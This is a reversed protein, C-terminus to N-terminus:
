LIKIDATVELIRISRISHINDEGYPVLEDMLSMDNESLKDGYLDEVNEDVYESLPWNHGYTHQKNYDTIVSAIRKLREVDEESIESIQEIYDADNTDGQIIVYIM